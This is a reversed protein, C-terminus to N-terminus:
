DKTSLKAVDYLFAPVGLFGGDNGGGMAIRSGIAADETGETVDCAYIPYDTKSVLTTIPEHVEGESSRDWVCIKGDIGWSLLLDESKGGFYKVGFIPRGPAHGGGLVCTCHVRVHSTGTTSEVHWLVIHGTGVCSALRTGSSDWSFSTLHSECGPLSLVAVTIGRPNVLRLTGDALAVGLLGNAECFSADFAYVLNDPNRHGGFAQADDSKATACNGNVWPNNGVQFSVGGNAHQVPSFRLTMAKTLQYTDGYLHEQKDLTWINVCDDSSTLLVPHGTWDDVFQLAYIQPADDVEEEEDVDGNTESAETADQTPKPPSHNKQAICSWKTSGSVLPVDSQVLEWLRVVGDAGASGLIPRNTNSKDDEEGLCASKWKPSSWAVRLVEHKKSHGTLTHLCRHTKVDWIKVTSDESASALYSGCPSFAMCFIKDKHGMMQRENKPRGTSGFAEILPLSANTAGNTEDKPVATAIATDTAMDKAPMPMPAESNVVATQEKGGGEGGVKGVDMEGMLHQMVAAEFNDHFGPPLTLGGTDTGDWDIAGAQGGTIDVVNLGNLLDEPATVSDIDVTDLDYALRSIQPPAEEGTPSTPGGQKKQRTTSGGGEETEAISGLTRRGLASLKLLANRKERLRQEEEAEEEATLPCPLCFPPLFPNLEEEEEVIPPADDTETSIGPATDSPQDACPLCFPPLFPDLEHVSGGGEDEEGGIPPDTTGPTNTTDSAVTPLLGASPPQDTCPLCFPPLFLDLEQVSGGKAGQEDEGEGLSLHGFEAQLDPTKEGDGKDDDGDGDGDDFVSTLAAGTELAERLLAPDALNFDDDDFDLDFDSERYNGALAELNATDQEDDTDDDHGLQSLLELLTPDLDDLDAALNEQALNPGGDGEPFRRLPDFASDTGLNGDESEDDTNNACFGSAAM